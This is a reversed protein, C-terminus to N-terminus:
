VGISQWPGWIAFTRGRGAQINVFLTRGGPGFTSGAFEDDTPNLAINWLHGDRSLGRIYNSDSNDECVVLTGRPSTTINDPLDLQMRGSSQFVCRLTATGPHYAWVQGFGNGFGSPATTNGAEPPGGGQTSTFYVVGARAVQGELRSFYAAGQAWGQRAVYSIATDNTTPAIEGPTYPFEPDADEIPVWDTLYTAGQVQAAELHANPMGVIRLMELTGGDELHGVVMPDSPPKYRYFGSAFGFDDETLYLYGSEPDYSVAEHAFRGASRIPQRSGQGEGPFVNAPVEFVYGHPQTLLTNPAGTFDPGVDPGNVTEECTVWAGWPMEGGSCNMMTGNLSTFSRVVEGTRTVQITTTGGGAATDYPTGKGFAGVPGNVEHNRVLVVTGDPGPFAGMGDHRGPLVTGDTLVVTSTTDHFSRYRFGEPVHLRVVGDREDPTPFLPVTRPKTGAAAPDAVLGAFPGALSAAAATRLVARREVPHDAPM